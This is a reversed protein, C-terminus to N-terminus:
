LERDLRHVPHPELLLPHRQHHISAVTTTTTTTIQRRHHINHAVYHPTPPLQLPWLPWPQRNCQIVRLHDEAWHIPDMTGVVTVISNTNNNNRWCRVSALIPLHGDVLLLLQLPELQVQDVKHAAAALRKIHHCIIIIIIISNNNCCFRISLWRPNRSCSISKSERNSVCKSRSAICRAATPEDDHALRRETPPRNKLWSVLGCERHHICFKLSVCVCVSKTDGSLDSLM